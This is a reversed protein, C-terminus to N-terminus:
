MGRDPGHLVRSEEGQGMPLTEMIVPGPYFVETEPGFMSEGILYRYLWEAYGMRYEFFDPENGDCAMLTWGESNRGHVGFVYEGRDTSALPVLGDPGGFRIEGEPGRLRSGRFADVTSRMWKGLNWMDTAPHSLFLHENVQLPGYLDILTKYEGPLEVGLENELRQWAAPDAHSNGSPGLMSIVRDVYNPSM